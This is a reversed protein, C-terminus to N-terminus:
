IGLPIKIKIDDKKCLTIAHVKFVIGRFKDDGIFKDAKGKKVYAITTHAQYTPFDNKNDISEEILYHLKVLEPAEMDIKLVDYDKPDKFATILGLRCEFPKVDKLLEKLKDPDADTIGYFLTTHIEDERGKDEDKTYLDSDPVNDKGWAFVKKSLDEPFDVQTSAYSYNVGDKAQKQRYSHTERDYTLETNSAPKKLIGSMQELLRDYGHPDFDLKSITRPDNLKGNISFQPITITKGAKFDEFVQLRSATDLDEFLFDIGKHDTTMDYPMACKNFSHACRRLVSAVSSFKGPKKKIDSLFKKLKDLDDFSKILPDKRGINKLFDQERASGPGPKYFVIYDSNILGALEDYINDEPKWDEDFPDIFFFYDGFEKELEERWVNDKCLGGLFVKVKNHTDRAKQVIKEIKSSGKNIM